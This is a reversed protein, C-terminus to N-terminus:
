LTSLQWRILLDMIGVNFGIILRSGTDAIFIDSKNIPGVGSSIIAIEVEPLNISIISSIVAEVCGSTDCKLVIELRKKEPPNASVQDAKEAIPNQHKAKKKKHHSTNKSSLGFLGGSM